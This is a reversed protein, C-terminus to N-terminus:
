VQLDLVSHVDDNIMKNFTVQEKWSLASFNSM